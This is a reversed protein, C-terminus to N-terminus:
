ILALHDLVKIRDEWAGKDFVTVQRCPHNWLMNVPGAWLGAFSIIHTDVKLTLFRPTM